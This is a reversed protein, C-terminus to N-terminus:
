LIQIHGLINRPSMLSCLALFFFTFNLHSGTPNKPKQDMQEKCAGHPKMDMKGIDALWLSLEHASLDADTRRTPCFFTGRNCAWLVPLWMLIAYTVGSFLTETNPGFFFSPHALRRFM